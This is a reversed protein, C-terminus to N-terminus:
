EINSIIEILSQRYDDLAEQYEQENEEDTNNEDNYDEKDPYELNDIECIASELTDIRERLMEGTPAWQLPEPMNDLRGQLEEMQNEIESYLEDKGEECRLDYREELHDQLDWLWMFFESTTLECREPKCNKCRTRPTQFQAVIKYYLEGVNIVAGCKSCKYEKRAKQTQIKAM